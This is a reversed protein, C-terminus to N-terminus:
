TQNWSTLSVARPLERPRGIDNEALAGCTRRCADIQGRLLGIQRDKARRSLISEPDLRRRSVDVSIADVINDHGGAAHATRAPSLGAGDVDNEAGATQWRPRDIERDRSRVYSNEARKVLM